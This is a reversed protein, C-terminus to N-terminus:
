RYMVEQLTNMGGQLHWVDERPGYLARILAMLHATRNANACVFLKEDKLKGILPLVHDLFDMGNKHFYDVAIHGPTVTSIYNPTAYKIMQLAGQLKPDHIEGKNEVAERIDLINGVRRGALISHPTIYNKKGEEEPTTYADWWVPIIRAWRRDFINEGAVLGLEDAKHAVAIIARKFEKKMHQVPDIAKAKEQELAKRAARIVESEDTLYQKIMGKVGGKPKPTSLYKAGVPTIIGREDAVPDSVVVNGDEDLGMVRPFGNEILDGAKFSAINELSM